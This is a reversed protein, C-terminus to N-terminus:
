SPPIQEYRKELEKYLDHMDEALRDHFSDEGDDDSLLYDVRHAFVACSRMSEYASWLSRITDKRYGRGKPEGYEGIAKDDNNRIIQEISDAIDSIVSEMYDFHGGSM